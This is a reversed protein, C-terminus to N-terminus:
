MPIDECNPDRTTTNCDTKKSNHFWSTSGSSSCKQESITTCVHCTRNERSFVATRNISSNGYAVSAGGLYGSRSAGSKGVTVDGSGGKMLNELTLGAGVEYSISYPEALPRDAETSFLGGPGGGGMNQCMYQAIDLSASKTAESVEKNFKKNYNENAQRLASAAILIKQNDLLNPFRATTTNGRGRTTGQIQSLDRGKVCYQIEMDSEIMGITRNITGAINNLEAEITEIIGDSNPVVHKKKRVEGIYSKVGIQGVKLLDDKGCSGEDLSDCIKDGNGMKIMGFSLMGTIRYIDGDKQARLSNTGITDDSAFRDCDTTSGCVETMKDDIKKQCAELLSNDVNLFFGMLMTDIDEMKFNKNAQKCVVLKDVPCMAHLYKYDMGICQTFDPGCRDDSTYCQKVEDTCADVRMAALKSVVYDWIQPEMRECPDIEIKCFSRAMDPRALCADMTATGKDAIDDKCAKQICAAIDGLCSQRKGSEAKSEAIKLEPAVDRLFDPWVNDRNALCKDLVRECIHRKSELMEQVSMSIDFKHTTGVRTGATSEAKNNQMNESAVANVCRGWDKGCADESQMCKKYEVMCTGRDYENDEDFREKRAAVMDKQADLLALESQKEMENIVKGLATCDSKVGTLYLQTIMTMDKGCDEPVQDMCIKRAGDYLNKGTLGELSFADEEEEEDETPDNFIAMRDIKAKKKAETMVNGKKDYERTGTFLIDAQAGAKIKEVEITSLRAAEDTNKEIRKMQDDYKSYDASCQCSGGNENDSICFQDMCGFYADYCEQNGQFAVKTRVTAKSASSVVASSGKRTAAAHASAIFFSSHLIFFSSLVVGASRAVGGFLPVKLFKKETKM